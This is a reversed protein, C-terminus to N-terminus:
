SSYSSNINFLLHMIKKKKKKQSVCLYPSLFLNYYFHMGGLGSLIMIVSKVKLYAQPLNYLVFCVKKLLTRCNGVSIHISNLTPQGFVSALAIICYYIYNIDSSVCVCVCVCM